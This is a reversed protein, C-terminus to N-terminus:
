APWVSPTRRAEIIWEANRAMYRASRKRELGRLWAAAARVSLFLTFRPMDDQGNMLSM